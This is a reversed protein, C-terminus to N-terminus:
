QSRFVKNNALILKIELVGSNDSFKPAVTMFHHKCGDANPSHTLHLLIPRWCCSRFGNHRTKANKSVSTQMQYIM